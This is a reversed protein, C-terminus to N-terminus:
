KSEDVVVVVQASLLLVAQEARQGGSCFFAARISCSNGVVCAALEVNHFLCFRGMHQPESNRCFGRHDHTVSSIGCLPVGLFRVVGVWKLTLDPVLLKRQGVVAHKQIVPKQLLRFVQGLRM